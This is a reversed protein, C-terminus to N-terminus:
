NNQTGGFPINLSDGLQSQKSFYAPATQFLISTDNSLMIQEKEQVNIRRVKKRIEKWQIM